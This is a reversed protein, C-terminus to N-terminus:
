NPPFQQICLEKDKQFQGDWRAAESNNLGCRPNYPWMNRCSDPNVGLKVCNLYGMECSGAWNSRYTTDASAMCNTLEAKRMSEELRESAEVRLKEEAPKTVLTDYLLSVVVLVVITIGAAIAVKM